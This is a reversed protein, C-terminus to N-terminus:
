RDDDRLIELGLVKSTWRWNWVLRCFYVVVFGGKELCMESVELEEGSLSVKGGEMEGMAM